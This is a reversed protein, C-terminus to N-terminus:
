IWRTYDEVIVKTCKGTGGLVVNNIGVPFRVNKLDGTVDRNRLGESDYANLTEGDLTIRGGVSFSLGMATVTGSGCFTLKPRSYINGRNILEFDTIYESFVEPIITMNFTTGVNGPAVDLCFITYDLNEDQTFVKARSTDMTFRQGGMMYSTVPYQPDDDEYICVEVASSEGSAVGFRMTYQTGDVLHIKKIPIMFEPAGTATGTLTVVGDKLAITLGHQTEVYDLGDFLNTSIVIRDDVSSFKFPQVHFVVTATKFRILREFDIQNLIQYRYYKDPENSFIVTGESNFYEIIDDINFDGFLGITMKKDYAAYGLKTVVDGDRGDIEEISTRQLPKTIPPLSSILLGKILTSKKGNLTIYNM